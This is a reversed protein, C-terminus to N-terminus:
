MLVSIVVYDYDYDDDDDDDDDDSCGKTPKAKRLYM